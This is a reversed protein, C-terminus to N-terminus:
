RFAPAGQEGFSSGMEGKSGIQGTASWEASVTPHAFPLSPDSYPQMSNISLPCLTLVRFPAWMFVCNDLGARQLAHLGTRWHRKGDVARRVHGLRRRHTSFAVAVVVSKDLGEKAAEFVFQDIMMAEGGAGLGAGGDEIVDLGEIVADSKM